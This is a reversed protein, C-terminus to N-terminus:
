KGTKKLRPLLQVDSDVGARRLRVGGHDIAVVEFGNVADGIKVEVGNIVAHRGKPGIVIMSIRLPAEVVTEQRASSGVPPRTPDVLPMDAAEIREVLLM